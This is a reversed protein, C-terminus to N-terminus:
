RPSGPAGLDSLAKQAPAFDPVRELVSQLEMLADEKRGSGALARALNTRVGVRQPFANGVKQLHPIAEEFRGLHLLVAGLNAMAEVNDPEIEISRGFKLAADLLQGRMLHVVGMSNLASARNPRVALVFELQEAAADVMGLKLYLAGLNDRVEPFRPRIDLARLYHERAAELNGEQEYANGLNQHAQFNDHTVSLARSFLAHSDKWHLVQFRTAMALSVVLGSVIAAQLMRFKQSRLAPLSWAVAVFIGISPLYSYRDAMFQLGVQVLGIVPLLLGLFWCWGMAVWPRKRLTGIAIASVLTFVTASIAIRRPDWSGPHPYFVALHVPWFLKRLYEDYAVIANALRATFSMAELSLTAQASHQAYIAILSFVVSIALLPIKERLANAPSVTPFREPGVVIADDPQAKVKWPALRRLPWVDLLLLLAPMTVLMPKCMLSCVYFVLVAAYSRKRAGRVFAEYSHLTLLGFFAALVDKREAVWAVSEVHMPHAAFLAAVLASRWRQETFRVLLAFLIISNAAHVGVNVAHHAGAKSGFLSVDLMHSMWTLPHWNGWKLTTFAWHLGSWTLGRQVQASETVYIPDDFNVFGYQFTSLYPVVALALILAATFAWTLNRSSKKEM